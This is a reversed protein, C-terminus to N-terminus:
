ELYQDFHKKFKQSMKKWILELVLVGIVGLVMGGIVDWVNHVGLYIRTFSVFIAFVAYFWFRNKNRLGTALAFAVLAHNSPFSFSTPCDIKAVVDVCPRTEHVLIKLIFGGLFVLSITLVLRNRKKGEEALFAILLVLILFIFDNDILQAIFTFAPINLQSISGTVFDVSLNAYM